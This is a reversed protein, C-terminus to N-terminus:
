ERGGEKEEKHLVDNFDGTPIFSCMLRFQELRINDECSAYTFFCNWPRKGEDKVLIEVCLEEAKEVTVLSQDKWM